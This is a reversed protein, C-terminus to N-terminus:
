NQRSCATKHLCVPTLGPGTGSGEQLSKLEPSVATDMQSNSEEDGPSPLSYKFRSGGSVGAVCVQFGPDPPIKEHQNPVGTNSPFENGDTSVAPVGRDDHGLSDLRGFLSRSSHELSPSPGM